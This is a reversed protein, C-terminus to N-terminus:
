GSFSEIAKEIENQVTPVDDQRQWGCYESGNYEITFKWRTPM